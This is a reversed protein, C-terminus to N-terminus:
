GEIKKPKSKLLNNANEIYAKCLEYEPQYGALTRELTDTVQSLAVELIAARDHKLTETQRTSIILGSEPTHGQLSQHSVVSTGTIHVEQRGGAAPTEKTSEEGVPPTLSSKAYEKYWKEPTGWSQAAIRELAAKMESLLDATADHLEAHKAYSIKWGPVTAMKRQLKKLEAQGRNWDILREIKDM